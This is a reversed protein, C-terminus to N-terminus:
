FRLKYFPAEGVLIFLLSGPKTFDGGFASKFYLSNLNAKFFVVEPNMKTWFHM